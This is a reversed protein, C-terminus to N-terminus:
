KLKKRNKHKEKGKKEKPGTGTVGPLGSLVDDGDFLDDVDPEGVKAM